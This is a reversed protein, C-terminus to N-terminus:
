GGGADAEDPGAFEVLQGDVLEFLRRDIPEDAGGSHEVVFDAFLSAFDADDARLSGATMLHREPLGVLIRGFPGLEQELHGVVEPLLIRVADWGDGTDSSILRRDGSIEDTWSATASWASLNRIAAEQVDSPEVGWSLLHDGNVVIDFAGADITYVIPLGAPGADILPQAHSLAAHALLSERDITAVSLGQTGVPRFSPYILDRAHRWDHEPADAISGVPPRPPVHGSVPSSTDLPALGGPGTQRQPPGSEDGHDPPGERGVDAGSGPDREM